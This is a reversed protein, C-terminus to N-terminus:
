TCTGIKHKCNGKSFDLTHFMITCFMPLSFYLIICEITHEVNGQFIYWGRINMTHLVNSCVTEVFHEVIALYTIIIKKKWLETKQRTTPFDDKCKKIAEDESVGYAQMEMYKCVTMANSEATWFEKCETLVSSSSKAESSGMKAQWFASISDKQMVEFAKQSGEDAAYWIYSPHNAGLIPINTNGVTITAISNVGFYGSLNFFEQVRRHVPGGYTVMPLAVDEDTILLLQLMEMVYNEFYSYSGDIHLGANFSTTIPAIDLISEYLAM